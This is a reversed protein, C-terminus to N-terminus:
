MSRLHYRPSFSVDQSVRHILVGAMFDLNHDGNIWRYYPFLEAVTSELDVDIETVPTSESDGLNIYNIDFYLGYKKKYITEFHVIFVAELNDFIDGFDM